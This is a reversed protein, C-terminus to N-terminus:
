SNLGELFLKHYGEIMAACDTGNIIARAGLPNDTTDNFYTALKRGTFWGQTMGFILIAAAIDPRLALSPTRELDEDDKLVGLAKLDATAKMYNTIWTLQVDGRGDYVLHWPGAPLGYSHGRGKGYEEVPQMTRATEHFVTALSYAIFRNDATPLWKSWADLITTIGSVQPQTLHDNFLSPRISDFFNTIDM